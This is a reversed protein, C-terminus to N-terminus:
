VMGRMWAPEDGHPEEPRVKVKPPAKMWANPDEMGPLSPEAALGRQRKREDMSEDVAFEEARKNRFPLTPDMEGSSATIGVNNFDYSNPGVNAHQNWNIHPLTGQVGMEGLNPPRIWETGTVKLQDATMEAGYTGSPNINKDTDIRGEAEVTHMVPRERVGTEFGRKRAASEAWQWGMHGASRDPAREEPGAFNATYYTADPNSLGPFAQPDGPRASAPTIVEPLEGSPPMVGGHTGSGIDYGRERAQFAQPSMRKPGDTM